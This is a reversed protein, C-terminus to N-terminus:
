YKKIHLHSASEICVLQMEDPREKTFPCVEFDGYIMNELTLKEELSQPVSRIEPYRESVGLIRKTGIRWIRASPAGNYYMLRGHVPFCPAVQEPNGKCPHKPEGTSGPALLAAGMALLVVYRVAHLM